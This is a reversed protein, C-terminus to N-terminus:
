LMKILMNRQQDMELALVKEKELAKLLDSFRKFGVSKEQFGPYLSQIDAKLISPNIREFGDDKYHKLQERFAEVWNDTTLERNKGAAGDEAALSVMVNYNDSRVKITGYQQSLRTLLKFFTSAGYNRENFDPRLRLLIGKLESAFVEEENHDDLISEVLKLLDSDDGAANDVKKAKQPQRRPSVSELFQFENCANIFITSAVESRSIGLVFKGMSKLKGVLPTYDSDGSVICFSDILPNTYAIEMADLVLLIDANNKQAVGHRLSPVVTFTNSLLLEKLGGFKETYGYVKGILIDGRIKVKELISNLTEAKGGANELDVFVAFRSTSM